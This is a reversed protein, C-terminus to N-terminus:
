EITAIFKGSVLHAAEINKNMMMIFPGIGMNLFICYIVELFISGLVFSLIWSTNQLLPLITVQFTNRIFGYYIWFLMNSSFLKKINQITSATEQNEGNIIVLSLEVNEQELLRLIAREQWREMYMGNCLVGFKIKPKM